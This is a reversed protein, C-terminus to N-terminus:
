ARAPDLRAVDVRRRVDRLNRLAVLDIALYLPVLVAPILILLLATIAATTVAGNFM